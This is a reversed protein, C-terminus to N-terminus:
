QFCSLSNTPLHSQPIEIFSVPIEEKFQVHIGKIESKLKLFYIFDTIDHIWAPFHSIKKISM